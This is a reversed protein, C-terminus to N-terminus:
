SKEVPWRFRDNCFSVFLLETEGFRLTDYDELKQVDKMDMGEVVVMAFGGSGFEDVMIDQGAVTDLTEPLYSLLDYNVRTRLFGLASPILLLVAILMMIYRHRAIFKGVDIM